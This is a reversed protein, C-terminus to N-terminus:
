SEVKESRWEASTDTIAKFILSFGLERALIMKASDRAVGFHAAISRASAFPYKSLLRVLALGLSFLPRGPRLEDKYSFITRNPANHGDQLKPRQTQTPGLTQKM